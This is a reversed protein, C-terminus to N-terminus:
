RVHEDVSLDKYLRMKDSKISKDKFVISLVTMFADDVNTALSVTVTATSTQSLSNFDTLQVDSKKTISSSVADIASTQAESNLEALLQRNQTQLKRLRLQKQFNQNQIKIDIIQTSTDFMFTDSSSQQHENVDRQRDRDEIEEIVSIKESVDDQTNSIKEIRSHTM